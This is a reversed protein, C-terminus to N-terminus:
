RVEDTESTPAALPHGPPAVAAAVDRFTRAAARDGRRAAVDGLEAWLAPDAGYHETAGKLAALAEDHRGLRALARGRAWGLRSASVPDTAEARAASALRAATRLRHERLADHVDAEAPSMPRLREIEAANARALRRAPEHEPMARLAARIQGRALVADGALTSAVAARYRLRPADSQEIRALYGAAAEAYRAEAFAADPDAAPTAQTVPSDGLLERPEGPQPPEPAAATQAALPPAAPAASGPPAAPPPTSAPAQQPASASLAEIRAHAREVWKAESPRNELEVYTQYADLAEPGRSLKELTRALGFHGDPDTPAAAIYARYAEAAEPLREAKRLAFALRYRGRAHTPVAEVLKRYAEIAGPLDRAKLLVRGLAEYHGVQGPEAAIAARWAAAAARHDGRAEAARADDAPAAWTPSALHVAGALLLISIRKMPRMTGTDSDQEYPAAGASAGPERTRGRNKESHLGLPTTPM